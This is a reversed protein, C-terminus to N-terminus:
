SPDLIERCREVTRASKLCSQALLKRIRSLTMVGGSALSPWFIELAIPIDDVPFEAFALQASLVRWAVRSPNFQGVACLLAVGPLEFITVFFPVRDGPLIISTLRAMAETMM